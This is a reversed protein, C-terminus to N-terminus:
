TPRVMLLEDYFTAQHYLAQPEVGYVKFGLRVYCRIAATNTTVVALKVVTVGHARAWEVCATILGEAIDFGRWDPRVYVGWLTASHHTKPSTGRTIGSMGILRESRAAFYVMEADDHQQFRLRESWESLPRALNMTYDAGFAEPHNQLAELRLDRFAAADAEHAPRITVTGSPTTILM